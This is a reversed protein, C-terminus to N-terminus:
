YVYCSIYSVKKNRSRYVFIHFDVRKLSFRHELPNHALIPCASGLSKSKPALLKLDLIFM